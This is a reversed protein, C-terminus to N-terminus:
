KFYEARTTARASSYGSEYYQGALLRDNVNELAIARNFWDRESDYRCSDRQNMAVAARKGCEKYAELTNIM